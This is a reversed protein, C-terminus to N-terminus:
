TVEGEGNTDPGDDPEIGDDDAEIGDDPAPVKGLVVLEYRHLGYAVLGVLGVLVAAAVWVRDWLAYSGLAIGGLVATGLLTWGATRRGGTSRVVPGVLVGVLGIEVLVPVLLGVDLGADPLTGSRTATVFAVQGIAFAYTAPLVAWAALLVGGGVLGLGGSLMWLLATVAVAAIGGPLSRVRRNSSGAPPEM